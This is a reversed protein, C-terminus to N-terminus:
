RDLLLFWSSPLVSDTLGYDHKEKQMVCIEGCAGKNPAAAVTTCVSMCLLTVPETRPPGCLLQLHRTSGLVRQVTQPLLACWYWPSHVSCYPRLLLLNAGQLSLHSSPQAPGGWLSKQELSSRHEHQLMATAGTGLLGSVDKWATLPPKMKHTPPTHFELHSTSRKLSKPDLLLFCPQKKWLPHKIISCM